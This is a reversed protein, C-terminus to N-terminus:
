ASEKNNKTNDVVTNFASLIDDVPTEDETTDIGTTATAIRGLSRDIWYQLAKEKTRQDTSSSCIKWYEEIAKPLRSTFDKEAQRKIGRLADDLTQRYEENNDYWNYITTRHVGIRDAIEQKSYDGTVLMEICEIQKKNLAM